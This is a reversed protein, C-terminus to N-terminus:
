YISSALGEIAQRHVQHSRWLVMERWDSAEPNFHDKVAKRIQRGLELDVADPRYKFLWLDKRLALLVRASPYTGFEPGVYTHRDGLLQQWFEDQTGPISVATSTGTVPSTVSNGFMKVARDYGEQGSSMECQLEGYGYPGLGTHYDLIVVQKRNTVDFDAVIHELTRREETPKTGGYFVGGPRTYQGSSLAVRYALEGHENQYAQLGVEARNICEESIDAPVIYDALEEYGRNDPLPKDFDIFNRNLDVHEVTCRRDWAFGYCGLAHVILVATSSPLAEHFGCHLFLLQAASGTYGEVGHTGSVLILLREAKPTGFYAVDTYLKEGAPGLVSYQYSTTKPAAQIFKVRADRYSGSFLVPVRRKAIDFDM